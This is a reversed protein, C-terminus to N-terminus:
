MVLRNKLEAPIEMSYVQGIGTRDSNFVIHNGDPSFMPHPHTWQPHGSSSEAHCLPASLGTEVNVLILGIDPWNTDSVVWKGDASGAAHWFHGGKAILRPEEGEIVTVISGFPENVTSLVAGDPGYFGYHGTSHKLDLPRMGSGDIECLWLGWNGGEEDTAGFLLRDSGGVDIQLHAIEPREFLVEAGSGDTAWRIVATKGSNMVASSVYYEGDVTISGLITGAYEVGPLTGLEVPESPVLDDGVAYGLLTGGEQAYVKAGNPSVVFGALGERRSVPRLDSGDLNVCWVDPTAWRGVGNYTLFILGGDPTFCPCHYYLTHNLVPFSTLQMIRVGTIPDIRPIREMNYYQAATVSGGVSRYVGTLRPDM